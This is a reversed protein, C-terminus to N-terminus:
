AAGIPTHNHDAYQPNNGNIANLIRRKTNEQALYYTQVNSLVLEKNEPDLKQFTELLRKKEEDM